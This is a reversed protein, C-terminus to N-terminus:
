SKPPESRVMGFKEPKLFRKRRMTAAIRSNIRSKELVVEIGV